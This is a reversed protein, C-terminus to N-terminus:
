DRGFCSPHDSIWLMGSRNYKRYYYGLFAYNDIESCLYYVLPVPSIIFFWLLTWATWRAIKQGIIKRKNNSHDTKFDTIDNHIYGAAAVCAFIFLLSLFDKFRFSPALHQAAITDYLVYQGYVFVTIFLMLLNPFRILRLISTM